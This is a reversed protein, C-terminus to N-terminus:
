LALFASEAEQITAFTGLCKRKKYVKKYVQFKGGKASVGEPLDHRKRRILGNQRSKGRKKNIMDHINEKQTGVFLHKPNVCKPNDCSHCVHLGKPIPGKFHGYSFRHARVSKSQIKISGYGNTTKAAVWEWCDHLHAPLKIKDLFREIPTM